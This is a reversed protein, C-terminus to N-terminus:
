QSQQLHAPETLLSLCPSVGRLKNSQGHNLTHFMSQFPEAFFPGLHVCM